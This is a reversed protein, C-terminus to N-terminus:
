VNGSKPLFDDWRQYLLEIARVDGTKAREILAKDIEPLEIKVREARKAKILKVIEPDRVKNYISAVGMNFKKAIDTVSLGMRHPDAFITAFAEKEEVTELKAIASM